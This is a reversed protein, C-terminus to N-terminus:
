GKRLRLNQEQYAGSHIDQWWDTNQKYWDVTASLGEDFNIKPVWGLERRLKDDNVSYRFDHGLRDKVYEIKDESVQMQTLIKRVLEINQHESPGGINYVDGARGAHFVRDIAASHDNVHVWHRVQNGKGYVPVSKGQLLHTVALPILKEPFQYPGYNNCCRTVMVPLGFTKYYSLALLDSGAKSSSYPSSPAIESTETFEGEEGLAGYVEDTSVHVFRSVGRQKAFALLTDTGVVNSMIFPRSGSISRDVHSEAAFHIIGDVQVDQLAEDLAREDAIDVQHFYYSDGVEIGKLNNLNGAYTLKDVNHIVVSAGYKERIFHIFNSGIFGAGGTVVWTQTSM